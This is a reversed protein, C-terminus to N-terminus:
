SEPDRTRQAGGLRRRRVSGALVTVQLRLGKFPSAEQKRSRRRIGELDRNGRPTTEVCTRPRDWRKGEANADFDAKGPAGNRSVNGVACPFRGATFPHFQRAGGRRVAMAVGHWGRMTEQIAVELRQGSGDCGKQRNPYVYAVSCDVAGCDSTLEGHWTLLNTKSTTVATTRVYTSCRSIRQQRGDDAFGEGM